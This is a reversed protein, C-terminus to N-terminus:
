EPFGEERWRAFLALQLPTWRQDPPPPMRRPGASSLRGAIREARTRVLDFDALNTGLEAMHDIDKPRFLPLIDRAFSTETHREATRDAVLLLRARDGTLLGALFAADLGTAGARLEEAIAVAAETRAGHLEWRATEAGPLHLRTPLTFPAAAAAVAAGRDDLPMTTLRRALFGLRSRMEAFVWGALLARDEGSALLHHELFGLLLAYRLDALDTWGRTGPDAVGAGPRPDTPVERTPVWEGDAPFPPRGGGGRFMALFREFHSPDGGTPGEGQEGIDRVAQVAAARDAMRHVRLDGVQWDEPNAQQAVSDPLFAADPLHWSEPPSQEHAASAVLRVVDDWADSGSGGAAVGDRSAVVVGLLAYLVGVRNIANGTTAQALAVIDEIGAADAPAEAVVYKALSRQTLRELRLPFPYLDKRPPFDERELNPPLGLLLLLNQVTMLHGMEERAIDLLLQPWSDEATDDLVAQQAPDTVEEPAKLSYASYLYQVMLSHEIEAASELLIRAKDLPSPWPSLDPLPITPAGGAVRALAAAPVDVDHWRLTPAPM